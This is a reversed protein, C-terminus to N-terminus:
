DSLSANSRNIKLNVRKNRKIQQNTTSYKEYRTEKKMRKKNYFYLDMPLFVSPKKQWINGKWYFVGIEAKKVREFQSQCVFPELLRRQHNWKVTYRYNSRKMIRQATAKSVLLEESLWKSSISVPTARTLSIKNEKEFPDFNVQQFKVIIPRIQIQLAIDKITGRKVKYPYFKTLPKKTGNRRDNTHREALEKKSILVVTNGVQRAYEKELLIGIHKVFTNRSYGIEPKRELIKYDKYRSIISNSFVSKYYAFIAQANVDGSDQLHKHPLVSIEQRLRLFKTV